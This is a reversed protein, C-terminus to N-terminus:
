LWGGLCGALLWCNMCQGHTGFVVRKPKSVCDMINVLCLWKTKHGVHRKWHIIAVCWVGLLVVRWCYMGYCWPISTQLVLIPQWLMM